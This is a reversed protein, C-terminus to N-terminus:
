MAVTMWGTGAEIKHVNQGMTGIKLVNTACVVSCFSFSLSSVVRPGVFLDVISGFEKM